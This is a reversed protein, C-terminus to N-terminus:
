PVTDPRTRWRRTGFFDAHAGSTITAGLRLPRSSVRTAWGQWRRSGALCAALQDCLGPAQEELRARWTDIENTM